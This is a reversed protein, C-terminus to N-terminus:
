RSLRYGRNGRYEFRPSRRACGRRLYSKVSSRSVPEGLLEEVAKHSDRVRLDCRALELVASIADRVTGFKRRGDPAVGDISRNRREVQEWDRATLRQYLTALDRNSLREVLVLRRLAQLIPARRRQHHLGRGCDRALPAVSPVVLLLLDSMQTHRCGGRGLFPGLVIEAIERTYTGAFGRQIWEDASRGRQDELGVAARSLRRAWSPVLSPSCTMARESHHKSV